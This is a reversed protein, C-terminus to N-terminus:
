QPTVVSVTRKEISGLLNPKGREIRHALRTRRERCRLFINAYRIQECVVM